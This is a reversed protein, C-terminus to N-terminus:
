AILGGAPLLQNRYRIATSLGVVLSLSVLVFLPIMALGPRQAGPRAAAGAAPVPVATRRLQDAPRVPHEADHLLPLLREPLGAPLQVGLLAPPLRDREPLLVMRGSTACGAPCGGGQQCTKCKYQDGLNDCLTAPSFCPNRPGGGCGVCGSVSGLSVGTRTSCPRGRRRRRPVQLVARQAVVEPRADTRSQCSPGCGERTTM